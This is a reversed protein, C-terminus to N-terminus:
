SQAPVDTVATSRPARTAWFSGLLVLPFGVLMGWTLSEGLVVIGLLVAVGPNVFTIVTARVAGAASILEFFLVFAVATCVLALVLISGIVKASPVGSSLGILTIPIYFIGVLTLSLAIVGMSPVHTLTRVAIAPGAAYCIAVILLEVVSLADISGTLSEIGVLAAVGVVGTGLGLIRVPTLGNRDGMVRAVLTAFIPVTALLLGAFGSTVRQEARGLLLWPIAMEVLGFAAVYPWAKLAPRLAGARAAIPVLVLAGIITRGGVVVAPSVETVAIKIFLYPIGWILSMAGFLAWARQTMHGTTAGNAGTASETTM